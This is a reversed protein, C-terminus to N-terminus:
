ANEGVPPILRNLEKEPVGYYGAALEELGPRDRVTLRGRVARILGEGELAQLATTV